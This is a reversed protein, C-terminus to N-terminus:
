EVEVAVAEQWAEKSALEGDMIGHVYSTGVLKWRTAVAPGSVKPDLSRRLILPVGLGTMIFISDGPISDKPCLGVYGKETILLWKGMTACRVTQYATALSTGQPFATPIENPMGTSDHEESSSSVSIEQLGEIGSSAQTSGSAFDRYPHCEQLYYDDEEMFSTLNYAWQVFAYLNEPRCRRVSLRVDRRKLEFAEDQKASAGCDELESPVFLQLGGFPTQWLANLTIAPSIARPSQHNHCKCLRMWAKHTHIEKMDSTSEMVDGVTKITDIAMSKVSLVRGAISKQPTERGSTLVLIEATRRHEHYVEYEHSASWDPTWSPLTKFNTRDADEKELLTRLGGLRIGILGNAIEQYAYEAPFSYDPYFLTGRSCANVMGMVAFVKDLPDASERSRCVILFTILSRVPDRETKYLMGRLPVKM